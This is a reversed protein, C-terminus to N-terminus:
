LVFRQLQQSVIEPTSMQAMKRALYKAGKEGEKREVQRLQAPSNPRMEGIFSEKQQPIESGYKGTASNLHV